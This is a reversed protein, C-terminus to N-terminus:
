WIFNTTVPHGGHCPVSIPMTRIGHERGTTLSGTTVKESLLSSHPHFTNRNAVPLGMGM